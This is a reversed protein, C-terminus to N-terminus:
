AIQDRLHQLHGIVERAGFHSERILWDFHRAISQVRAPDRFVIYQRGLYISALHPGYITVPSSFVRHADFLYLRLSPYLAQCLAIMHDLQAHRIALPLGEWYGFARAFCTMEHLPMAIEYDSRAGRMWDLQDQFAAIAQDSAQGLHDRYEWAVLEPLKLMDPLTAPVHRVKYGAAEHHWSFSEADYLARPADSLSVSAALLEAVPEPRGALGMLWDCSVNLALACDAALQANPLRKGEALLASISSRDVGTARALASQSISKEAMARTLRDRFITARNRKDNERM